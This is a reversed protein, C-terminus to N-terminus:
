NESFSQNPSTRYQWQELHRLIVPEANEAFEFQDTQLKLRRLSYLPIQVCALFVYLTQEFQPDGINELSAESGSLKRIRSPEKSDTLSTSIVPWTQTEELALQYLM